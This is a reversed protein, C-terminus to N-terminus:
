SNICNQLDSFDDEDEEEEGKVLRQIENYMTDIRLHFKRHMSMYIDFMGLGHKLQDNYFAWLDCSLKVTIKEKDVSEPILVSRWAKFYEKDVQRMGNYTNVFHYNAGAKILAFVADNAQSSAKFSALVTNMKRQDFEVKLVHNLTLAHSLLSFQHGRLKCLLSLVSAPVGVKTNIRGYENNFALMAELLHKAFDAYIRRYFQKEVIRKECLAKDVRLSHERVNHIKEERLNLVQSIVEKAKDWNVSLTVAQSNNLINVFASAQVFELGYILYITSRELGLMDAVDSISIGKRSLLESVTEYFMTGAAFRNGGIDGLM